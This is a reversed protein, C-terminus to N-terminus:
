RMRRVSRKPLQVVINGLDFRKAAEAKIGDITRSAGHGPNVIDFGELFGNGKSKTCSLAYECGVPVYPYIFRGDSGSPVYFNPSSNFRRNLVPVARVLIGEVSKGASDILRGTLTACPELKVTLERPRNGPKLDFYKGLKRERDLIWVGRTEDRELASVEATSDMVPEWGNVDASHINLGFCGPAPRGDPDILTLRVSEGPDLACDCWVMRADVPPNIEKIANNRRPGFYAPGRYTEYAGDKVPVHIESDGIGKLYSEQYTSVGILGPGPLAVLKFNGQADTQYRRSQNGEMHQRRKSREFEPLHFTFPNTLAPLYQVIAGVVPQGTVKNTVRGRIWVGRHLDVDITARRFDTGQPVVEFERMLYPQDDNPRVLIKNGKVQPMGRLEYRGKLDTEARMQDNLLYSGALSQSRVSVRPLPEGTAADRVTGVVTQAPAAKLTFEAGRLPVHYVGFNPLDPVVRRTAVVAESYAIMDGQLDLDVIREAGLGTLTFRGDADTTSQPNWDTPYGITSDAFNSVHSLGSPDSKRAAFVADFNREWTKDVSLVRVHIGPVPKGELNLVRGQIPVDHVLKLVPTKAPDIYLWQTWQFGFGPLTAAIMAMRWNGGFASAFPLRSYTIEFTGDPRSTTTALPRKPIDLRITPGFVGVTAGGAPRGDPTLVQGRVTVLDGNIEKSPLRKNAPASEFRSAAPSQPFVAGTTSSVALLTVTALTMRGLNSQVAPPATGFAALFPRLM